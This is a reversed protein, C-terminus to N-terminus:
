KISYRKLKFLSCEETSQYYKKLSVKGKQNRQCGLKSSEIKDAEFLNAVGVFNSQQNSPTDEIPTM